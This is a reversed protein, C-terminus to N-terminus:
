DTLTFDRTLSSRSPEVTVKLETKANYKAPLYQEVPDLPPLGDDFTKSEPRRTDKRVGLIVVRYSGVPIGGQSEAIYKGDAIAVIAPSGGTGECPYFGVSGQPIPQGRYTVAGTVVVRESGRGCGTIVM